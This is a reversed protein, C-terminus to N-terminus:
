KIDFLIKHNNERVLINVFHLPDSIVSVNRELPLNNSQKHDVVDVLWVSKIIDRQCCWKLFYLLMPQLIHILARFVLLCVSLFEIITFM